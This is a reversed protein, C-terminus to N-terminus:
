GRVLRLYDRAATKTYGLISSSSFLVVLGYFVNNPYTTSSWYGYSVCQFYTTDIYPAGIGADFVVLSYLEFINPVRWDNHGALNQANAQDCFDWILDDVTAITISNGAAEDALSEVTTIDSATIASVTYTGDNSASGSVTFKRGACLAQTDFQGAGSHIKSTASDFSIDVKDALVWQKYFLRGNNGPGIDSDPTYKMWMLGTRNDVVCANEMAITKANVTINTTGSYQGTTLATYDRAIGKQFYGDDEMGNYQVIQGTKLLKSQIGGGGGGKQRVIGVGIVGM